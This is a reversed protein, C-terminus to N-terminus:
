KKELDRLASLVEASHEAPQVNDFVLAIRGDPAILFTKRAVRAVRGDPAIVFAGPSAKTIGTYALTGYEQAVSHETDALLKFRLGEKACFRQHSDPNDVSVGLIIANLQKYKEMDRQFNQAELTCGTSFDKPYFYLVVWKGAYDQLSVPTGDESTLTFRPAQEGAVPVAAMLPLAAVTGVVACLLTLWLKRFM